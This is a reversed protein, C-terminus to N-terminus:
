ESENVQNWDEMSGLDYVNPFGFEIIKIAAERSRTGSKCYVIINDINSSTVNEISKKTITELPINVANEIHGKEYEELSRVDILIAKENSVFEYALESDIKKYLKEGDIKENSCGILVLSLILLCLIKKM